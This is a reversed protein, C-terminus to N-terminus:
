EGPEGGRRLRARAVAALVGNHLESKDMASVDALEVRAGAPAGGEASVRLEHADYRARARDAQARDRDLAEISSKAYRFYHVLPLRSPCVYACCGCDICNFLHYDQAADFDSLRAAEYLQQPQLGVPCVPICDGCRICASAPAEAADGDMVLVCNTTKTIPASTDVIETGRM